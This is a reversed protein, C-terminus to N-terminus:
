IKVLIKQGIYLCSSVQDTTQQLIPMKEEVTDLGRCAFKNATAIQPEFTTLLPQATNIAAGTITKMGKEAGGCVTQLYSSKRKISTYNSSVLSCVSCVLPLSGVRKLVNQCPFWLWISTR